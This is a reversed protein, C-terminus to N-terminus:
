KFLETIPIAPPTTKTASTPYTSSVISSKNFGNLDMTPIGKKLDFISYFPPRKHDGKASELATLIAPHDESDGLHVVDRTSSKDNFYGSASRGTYAKFLTQTGSTLDGRGQPTSPVVLNAPAQRNVAKLIARNMLNLDQTAKMTKLDFVFIWGSVYWSKGAHSVGGQLSCLFASYDPAWEIFKLHSRDWQDVMVGHSERDLKVFIENRDIDKQEQYHIGEQHVYLFISTLTTCIRSDIVIYKEDPSFNISSLHSGEFLQIRNSRNKADSLWIPWICVDNLAPKGKVAEFDLKYFECVLDGLPSPTEKRLKYYNAPQAAASAAATLISVLVFFFKAM